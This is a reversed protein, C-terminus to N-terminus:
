SSYSEIVTRDDPNGDDPSIYQMGPMLDNGDRGTFSQINIWGPDSEKNGPSGGSERYFTTRNSKFANMYLHLQIDPVTDSSKNVWFADMTGSVTKKDTDLRVKLRYGTIRESLPIRNIIQSQITNFILFIVIFFTSIRKM